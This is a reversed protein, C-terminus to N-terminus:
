YGKTDVVNGDADKLIAKDGTDNWIGGTCGRNWRGISQVQPTSYVTVSSYPDLTVDADFTFIYRYGGLTDALTWGGINVPEGGINLITVYEYTCRGEYHIEEIVVPYRLSGVSFHYSTLVYRLDDVRKYGVRCMNQRDSVDLVGSVLQYPEGTYPCVIEGDMNARVYDAWGDESPRPYSTEILMQINRLDALRANTKAAEVGSYYRGVAIAVLVALIIVVVLLEVLTYGRMHRRDMM